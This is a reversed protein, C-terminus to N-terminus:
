IQPLFHIIEMKEAAERVQEGASVFLPIFIEQRREELTTM